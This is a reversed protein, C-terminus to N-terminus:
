VTLVEGWGAKEGSFNRAFFYVPAEEKIQKMGSGRQKFM